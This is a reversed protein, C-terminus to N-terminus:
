SKSATPDQLFSLSPSGSSNFGNFVCALIQCPRLFCPFASGLHWSHTWLQTVSGSDHAENVPLLAESYNWQLMGESCVFSVKWSGRRHYNPQQEPARLSLQVVEQPLGPKLFVLNPQVSTMRKLGLYKWSRFSNMPNQSEQGPFTLRHNQRRSLTPPSPLRAQLTCPHARRQEM